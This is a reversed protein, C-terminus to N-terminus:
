VAIPFPWDSEHLPRKNPYLRRNESAVRFSQYSEWDGSASVARLHLM